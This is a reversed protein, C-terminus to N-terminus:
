IEMDKGTYDVFMFRGEPMTRQEILQLIGDASTRPNTPAAAGGMDTFMWGPHVSLVHIGREQLTVHLKQSFMNLATKSITYPFSGPYANTISGAESSVNIISAGPETLLPLFHKVVRMPGYLNIDMATRMEEIDLEELLTDTGNLVAANNIIVGLTRGADKLDAALAAIGDEDTVDLRVITMRGGSDAALQSIETQEAPYQRVGAIVSHGRELAATALDVGLGRGAGTILINM